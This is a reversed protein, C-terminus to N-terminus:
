IDFTNKKQLPKFIWNDFDYESYRIFNYCSPTINLQSVEGYGDVMDNWAERIKYVSSIKESNQNEANVTGTNTALSNTHRLFECYTHNAIVSKLETENVIGKFTVPVDIGCYDVTYTGGYLLAQYKADSENAILDAYLNAGLLSMLIFEQSSSMLNQLLNDYRQKPLAIKGTFYSEDILLDM